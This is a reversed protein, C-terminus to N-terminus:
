RQIASTLDAVCAGIALQHLDFTLNLSAGGTAAGATPADTM